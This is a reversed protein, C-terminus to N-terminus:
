PFQEGCLDCSFLADDDRTWRHDHTAGHPGDPEARRLGDIGEKLMQAAYVHRAARRELEKVLQSARRAAESDNGQLLEHALAEAEWAADHTGPVAVLLRHLAQAQEAM